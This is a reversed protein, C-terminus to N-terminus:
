GTHHLVRSVSFKSSPRNWGPPDRRPEASLQGPRGSADLRSRTDVERAARHRQLEDVHGGIALRMGGSDVLFQASCTSRDPKRFTVDVFPRNNALHRPVSVSDV